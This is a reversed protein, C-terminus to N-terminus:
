NCINVAIYRGAYVHIRAYYCTVSLKAKSHYKGPISFPTSVRHISSQPEFTQLCKRPCPWIWKKQTHKNTQRNTDWWKERELGGGRGGKDGPLSSDMIYLSWKEIVRMIRGKRTSTFKGKEFKFSIWFNKM